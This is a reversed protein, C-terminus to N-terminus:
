SYDRNPLSVSIQLILSIERSLTRGSATLFRNTAYKNVRNKFREKKKKMLHFAPVSERECSRALMGKWLVVYPKRGAQKDAFNRRATQTQDKIKLTKVCAICLCRFNRFIITVNQPHTTYTKDTSIYRLNGDLRLNRSIHSVKSVETM